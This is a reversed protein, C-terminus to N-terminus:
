PGCCSTSRNVEVPCTAGDYGRERIERLLVAAPIWCPRAQEVRESLYDKYGDLKCARPQRAEYRQAQEDRLYRRLTNRSCRLQRAIERVGDGRRAM